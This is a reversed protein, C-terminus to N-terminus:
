PSLLIIAKHCSIRSPHIESLKEKEDLQNMLEVSSLSQYWLHQGAVCCQILLSPRITSILLLDENTNFFHIASASTQCSISFRAKCQAPSGDRRLNVMLSCRRQLKFNQCLHFLAGQWWRGTSVWATIKTGHARPGASVASLGGESTDCVPGWFLAGTVMNRHTDFPQFLVNDINNLM